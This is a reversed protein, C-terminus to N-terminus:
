DAPPPATAPDMAGGAAPDMTGGAPAMGPATEPTATPGPDRDRFAYEPAAEAQERTLELTIARGDADIQLESWDVAINKAGLGLFGGVGLIAATIQGQEPDIIVDQIAGINEGDPSTVTTGMVWDGRLESSAQETVVAEPAPGGEAATEPAEGEAPEEVIVTEGEAEGEAPEQAMESAEGEAPEEVTVTAEGESEAEAPEQAMEPAEGEAPEEVIVTADGESEAGAPEQAMEPAEGEAPEEVTVTAEGEGGAAEGTAGEEAMPTSQPAEEEAATPADQAFAPLALFPVALASTMLLRRM